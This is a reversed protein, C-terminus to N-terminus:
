TQIFIPYNQEALFRDISHHLHHTNIIISNCGAQQLAAIIRDLLPRGAIPFLAKPFTTTFPQLRTGYGAALILAKM